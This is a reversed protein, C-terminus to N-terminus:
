FDKKRFVMIALGVMLILFLFSTLVPQIEDIGKGSSLQVTILGMLETTKPFIYYFVDIVGRWFDSEILVGFRKKAEYLVPGLILFTFYALMMGAISGRTIVNFLIIISYLVAFTFTITFVAWLFSPDWSGFKIAIIIWIGIIIFSINILVTLVAGLYKGIILQARSIPKSLYLDITGKELMAPVFGATSFIALLLCLNAIPSLIILRLHLLLEQLIVMEEAPNVFALLSDTKILSFIIALVLLFLLSIGIFFLFVKKSLAERLTFLSLILINKM